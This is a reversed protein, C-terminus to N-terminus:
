HERQNTSRRFEDEQKLQTMLTRLDLKDITTKGFIASVFDGYEKHTRNRIILIFDHDTVDNGADTLEQKLSTLRNLYVEM